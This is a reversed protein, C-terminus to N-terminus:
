APLEAAPSSKASGRCNARLTMSPMLSAVFWMSDIVTSQGLVLITSPPNECPADTPPHPGEGPTGGPTGAANTGGGMGGSTASWTAATVKNPLGDFRNRPSEPAGCIVM